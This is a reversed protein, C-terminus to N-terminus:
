EEAVLVEQCEAWITLTPGGPPLPGPDPTPSDRVEGGPSLGALGVSVAVGHWPLARGTNEEHYFGGQWQHGASSPAAVCRVTSELSQNTRATQDNSVPHYGSSLSTTLGLAVCSCKWVHSTFQPGHDLVIDKLIGHLRFVHQVLLEGTKM